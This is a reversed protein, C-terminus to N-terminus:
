HGMKMVGLVGHMFIAEVTPVELTELHMKTRLLPSHLKGSFLEIFWIKCRDRVHLTFAVNVSYRVMRNETYGPVQCIFDFVLNYYVLSTVGADAQVCM